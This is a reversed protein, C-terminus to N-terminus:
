SNASVPVGEDSVAANKLTSRAVRLVSYASLDLSSSETRSRCLGDPTKGSSRWSTPSFRM